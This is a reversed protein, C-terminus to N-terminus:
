EEKNIETYKKQMCPRCFHVGGLTQNSKGGIASHYIYFTGQTFEQGCAVCERKRGNSINM